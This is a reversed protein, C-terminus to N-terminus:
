THTATKEFTLIIKIQSNTTNKEQKHSITIHTNVHNFISYIVIQIWQIIRILSNRKSSNKKLTINSNKKLLKTKQNVFFSKRV